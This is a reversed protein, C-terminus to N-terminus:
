CISIRKVAKPCDDDLGNPEWDTNPCVLELLLGKAGLGNPLVVVGNPDCVPVEMNPPVEM